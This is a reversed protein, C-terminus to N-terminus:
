LGYVNVLLRSTGIEEFGAEKYLQFEAHDIAEDPYPKRDEEQRMHSLVQEPIRYEVEPEQTPASKAPEQNPLVFLADMKKRAEEFAMFDLLEKGKNVPEEYPLPRPFFVTFAPRVSRLRFLLSPIWRLLMSKHSEQGPEMVLDYLYFFTHEVEDFFDTRLLHAMAYELDGSNADCIDYLDYGDAEAQDGLVLSGSLTGLKVRRDCHGCYAADEESENLDSPLGYLDIVLNRVFDYYDTSESDWDFVAFNNGSDAFVWAFEKDSKVFLEGQNM